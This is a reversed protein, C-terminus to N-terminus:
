AAKFNEIPQSMSASFEKNKANIFKDQIMRMTDDNYLDVIKTLLEALTLSERGTLGIENLMHRVGKIAFGIYEEQHHADKLLTFIKNKRESMISCDKGYFVIKDLHKNYCAYPKFESSPKM